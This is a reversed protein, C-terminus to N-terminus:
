QITFKALSYGNPIGSLSGGFCTYGSPTDTAFCGYSTSFQINASGGLADKWFGSVSHGNPIVFATYQKFRGDTSDSGLDLVTPLSTYTGQNYTSIPGQLDSFNNSSKWYYTTQQTNQTFVAMYTTPLNGVYNNLTNPTLNQSSTHTTMQWHSFTWGTEADAELKISTGTYFYGSQTPSGGTPTLKVSGNGQKTVETYVKLKARYVTNSPPVTIPRDNVTSNNDTWEGFQYTKSQPITIGITTASNPEYSGSGYSTVNYFSYSQTPIIDITITVLSSTQPNFYAVYEGSATPIFCYYSSHSVNSGSPGVWRNFTFGDNATANLCVTQGSDVTVCSSSNVTATGGNNGGTTRTDVCITYPGGSPPPTPGSSTFRATFVEGCSDIYIQRPNATIGDDWSSFSYGDAPEVTVTITEGEAMTGDIVFKHGAQCYRTVSM